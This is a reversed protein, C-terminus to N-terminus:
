SFGLFLSSVSKHYGVKYRLLEGEEMYGHLLIDKLPIDKKPPAGAVSAQSIYISLCLSSSLNVPMLSEANKCGIGIEPRFEKM